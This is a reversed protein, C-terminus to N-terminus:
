EAGTVWTWATVKEGVDRKVRGNEELYRLMAFITGQRTAAGSLYHKFPIAVPVLERIRMPRGSGQLAKCLNAFIEEGAAKAQLLYAKVQEAGSIIGYHGTVITSIDREALAALTQMEGAYDSLPNNLSALGMLKGDNEKFSILDGSALISGDALYAVHERLHGPTFIVELTHDEGLDFEQGDELPFVQENAVMKGWLFNLGFEVISDSARTIERRADGLEQLIVKKEYAPDALYPVAGPHAYVPVCADGGARAIAARYFPIGRCHDPHPHTICIKTTRGIDLGDRGFLELYQQGRKGAGTGADVLVQDRPGCFVVPSAGFSGRSIGNFVPYAYAVPCNGVQM